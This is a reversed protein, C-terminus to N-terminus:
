FSYGLSFGILPYFKYSREDDELFMVYLPTFGSRIFLGKKKQYRYGAVGHILIVALDFDKSFGGSLGGGLEFRHKKGGLHYYMVNPSLGEAPQLGVSIANSEKIRFDVNISIFGKGMIEVFPSICSKWAITSSNQLSDTKSDVAESRNITDKHIEEQAFLQVSFSLFM